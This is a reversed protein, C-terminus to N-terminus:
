EVIQRYVDAYRDAVAHLSYDNVVRERGARGLELRLPENELLKLVAGALERSEEPPVVLGAGPLVDVIAGSAAGICPIGTAMAELLAHADHEVHHRLIRSPMAFMDIGKLFDAVLAHPVSDLVTLWQM